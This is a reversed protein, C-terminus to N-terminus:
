RTGKGVLYGVVGAVVAGMGIGPLIGLGSVGSRTTARLPDDESGYRHGQLYDDALKKALAERTQKPFNNQVSGGFEKVYKKAAADVAYQWLRPALKHDYKGSKQKKALNHEIALLQRYIQYDNEMYLELERLANQDIM